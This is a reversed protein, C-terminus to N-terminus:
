VHHATAIHECGSSAWGQTLGVKNAARYCTGRFRALDVFTELYCIPHGYMREWERPLIAAMRSLLHSALYRVQVWPLVFYPRSRAVL